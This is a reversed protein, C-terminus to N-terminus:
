RGMGWSRSAMEEAAAATRRFYDNNEIEMRRREAELPSEFAELQIAKSLNEVSFFQPKPGSMTTLLKSLTGEKETKVPLGTGERVNAIISELARRRREYDELRAALKQPTGSIGEFWREMTGAKNLDALNGKILGIEFNVGALRHEAQKILEPRQLHLLEAVAPESMIEAGGQTQELKKRINGSTTELAANGELVKTTLYAFAAALATIATAVPHARIVTLIGGLRELAGYLKVSGYVAGATGIGYLAWQAASDKTGADLNRIVNRVNQIAAIAKVIVPIFSKGIEGALLQTSITLTNIADPSAAAVFGTIAATGATFIRASTSTLKDVHEQVSRSAREALKRQKEFAKELSGRLGIEVFASGLKMTASM